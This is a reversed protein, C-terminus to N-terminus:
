AALLACTLNQPRCDQRWDTRAETRKSSLGRGDMWPRLLIAIAHGKFRAAGERKDSSRVTEKECCCFCSKRSNDNPTSAAGGGCCCCCCRAASLLNYAARESWSQLLAVSQNNLISSPTFPCIFPFLQKKKKHPPSMNFRIWRQRESLM